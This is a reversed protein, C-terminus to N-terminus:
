PGTSELIAIDKEVEHVKAQTDHNLQKKGKLTARLSTRQGKLVVIDKEIHELEDIASQIESAEKSVKAQVDQLRAKAEKLQQEHLNQFSKMSELILYVDDEISLLFDVPTNSIKVLLGSWLRQLFDKQYNFLFSEGEFVSVVVPPPSHKRRFGIGLPLTMTSSHSTESEEGIDISQVEDELKAWWAKFAELCLKKANAPLYPFWVKSSSKSLICLCWYRFGKELSAVRTDYRLTGPVDQYYGFQRGFRHPSYPEIIFRGGQRLTLYSSRIAIFYNHDLEEAHGDDVLKLPEDGEGSFRTMKPGRLEQWVLHHTKYYCTALVLIALNVRRGNTMLSAMKFTSPRISNVDKGPVFMCLWCALYAALYVEKKLNREICLKAFLAEEVTSWREHIAIDGLPNHTSKPRVKKKHYCQNDDVSQFLHYAYFLYNSSRPIFRERKEDIGTLELVNPVVEDYLCGTVPLGALERLDGLLISIKRVSTFLTNTLPCWAECFAKVIFWRVKPRDALVGKPLNGSSGRGVRISQFRKTFSWSEVVKLKLHRLRDECRSLVDETWEWYGKTYHFEGIFRLDGDWKADGEIISYSLTCLNAFDDSPQQRLPGHHTARLNWTKINKSLSIEQCWEGLHSFNTLRPWPNVNRGGILPAYVALMTGKELPQNQNDLIILHYEGSPFSKDKFYVM